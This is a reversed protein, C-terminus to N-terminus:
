SFGAYQRITWPQLAYMASYPGRLFPPIGAAYHLHELGELDDATYVPAVRIHEPTMWGTAAAEAAEAGQRADAAARQGTESVGARPDYDISTFDPRM